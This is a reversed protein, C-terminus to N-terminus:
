FLHQFSALFIIASYCAWGLITDMMQLKGSHKFEDLLLKRRGQRFSTLHWWKIVCQKTVWRALWLNYSRNWIQALVFWPPLSAICCVWCESWGAIRWCKSSCGSVRLFCAKGHKGLSPTLTYRPSSSPSPHVGHIYLLLFLSFFNVAICLISPLILFYM